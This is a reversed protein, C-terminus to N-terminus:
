CANQIAGFLILCGHNELVHFCISCFMGIECPISYVYNPWSSGCDAFCSM